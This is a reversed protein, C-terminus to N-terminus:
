LQIDNLLYLIILSGALIVFTTLIFWRLRFVYWPRNMGITAIYILTMTSLIAIITLIKSLIM